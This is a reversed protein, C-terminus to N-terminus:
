SPQKSQHEALAMLRRDRWERRQEAIEPRIIHSMAEHVAGILEPTLKVPKQTEQVMSYFEAQREFFGEIGGPPNVAATEFPGMFSWRLGLGHKVVADCDAASAVGESVLRLAEFMLAVQLSNIVYGPLERQIMIPVLRCREVLARSRAVTAPSTWQSPVVEVARLAYPPQVPHVVICRDRGPANESFASPFVTSTSSALVTDAGAIEGMRAFVAIKAAL